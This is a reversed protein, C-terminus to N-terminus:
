GCAKKTLSNTRASIPTSSPSNRTSKPWGSKAPPISPPAKNSAIKAIEARNLDIAHKLADVFAGVKAKRFDPVGGYPGTWPDLLPFNPMAAMMPGMSVLATAAASTLLFQRRQM